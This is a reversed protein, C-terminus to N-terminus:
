VVVEILYPGPTAISRAFADTFQEATDARMAPVGMGNALRVWDLDPRSLDMMDMAKRGPNHAGVRMFEIQLIAYKRNSFIVTTVDLNERAQTWLAQVTYMGSGDAQLSVVRRDPCAIAAGTAAPMGMGIAGGTLDLLDHPAACQTNTAMAFGSTAAENVIIAQEPLLAGVSRAVKEPDILGSPLEPRQLKGVAPRFATAGVREALESLAAVADEGPVSLQHVTCGQPTLESPRGPYAFFSVPAKTDVLILHRTGALLEQAQEAFYPMRGIEVRGAGRPMRAIFTDALLRAGTAQGIRSALDLGAASVGLGNLLMLCPEGGALAAAAAAVAEEAPRTLAPVPLPAAPACADNWATDAPLILTAIAGPPTAATRVAEAADGAVELASESVRVWASVPAAFGEIDSSLPADLARHYTAHEGVVNVVGSNARRANHLNALGNALGPGLHLLTCAPKGAMRAYGDAAGTVVGEFLGLVGRMGAQIDLAAVFHMESTGPNTFCVEVGADVLTQLLSQAGNMANGAPPNRRLKHM